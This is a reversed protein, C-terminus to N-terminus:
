GERGNEKLHKKILEVILYECVVGNRAKCDDYSFAVNPIEEVTFSNEELYVTYEEDDVNVRIDGEREKIQFRTLEDKSYKATDFAASNYSRAQAIADKKDLCVYKYSGFTYRSDTGDGKLFMVSYDFIAGCNYHVKNHLEFYYSNNNEEGSYIRVRFANPITLGIIRYPTIVCKYEKILGAIDKFVVYVNFPKGIEQKKFTNDHKRYPPLSLDERRATFYDEIHLGISM